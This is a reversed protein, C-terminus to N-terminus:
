GRRWGGEMLGEEMLGSPFRIAAGGPGLRAFGGRLKEGAAQCSHLRLPPLEEIGVVGTGEVQRQSGRLVPDDGPAPRRQPGARTRDDTGGEKPSGSTYVIDTLEMYRQEVVSLETLM